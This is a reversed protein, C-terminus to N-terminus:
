QIRPNQIMFLPGGPYNPNYDSITGLNNVFDSAGPKNEFCVGWDDGVIINNGLLQNQGPPVIYRNYVSRSNPHYLIVTVPINWENYFAVRGTHGQFVRPSFTQSCTTKPKVTNDAEDIYKKLINSVNQNTGVYRLTVIVDTDLSGGPGWALCGGVPSRMECGGEVAVWAIINVGANKTSVGQSSQQVSSFENNAKNQIELLIPLDGFQAKLHDMYEAFSKIQTDIFTQSVLQNGSEVKICSPGGVEGTSGREGSRTDCDEVVWGNDPEFRQNFEDRGESKVKRLRITVRQTCRDGIKPNSPCQFSTQADAQRSSFLDIGIALVSAVACSVLVKHLWM